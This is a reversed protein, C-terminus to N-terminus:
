REDKKQTSERVVLEVDLKQQQPVQADQDGRLRRALVQMAQRGMKEKPTRITTLPVKLCSSLQVDDYGVIAVDDPISFGAERISQMVGFAVFDSYSVIATPPSERKFFSRALSRGADVTLAGTKVLSKDLPVGYRNLADKFGQFRERASSIHLPGNVMAIQTHGQELLHETALFGGQYDNPVVYATELDDFYRGLLVFPFRAAALKEITEKRSQVPTILLGDVQESLMVQIAEEEGAYAEDTDQLIISYGLDRAARAVGKVLAGFFPNAVDTVIVGITATKNLRLGKALRNPRYGLRTATELIKEKTETRIEPKSNLARSVTNISFGTVNAIDKITVRKV